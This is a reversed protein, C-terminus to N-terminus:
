GTVLTYTAGAFIAVAYPMPEGALIRARERAAVQFLPTQQGPAAPVAAHRLITRSALYICSLLGGALVIAFVLTLLRDPPVAVALAAILKADGWGIFNYSALVSLAAVVILLGLLSPWFPGAPSLLRLFIGACLVLLVLRNPIIRDAVDTAVAVSLCVLILGEPLWAITPWAM